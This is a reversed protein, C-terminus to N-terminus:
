LLYDESEVKIQTSIKYYVTRIMEYAIINGDDDRGNDDDEDDDENNDDNDTQREQVGRVPGLSVRLDTDGEFKKSSTISDAVSM